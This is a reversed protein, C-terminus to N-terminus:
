HPDPQAAPHRTQNYFPRGQYLSHAHAQSASIAKLAQKVEPSLPGMIDQYGPLWLPVIAKLRKVRPLTAALWIKKLPKLIDRMHYIPKTGRKKPKPQTFRRYKRLLRIAHKRHYGLTACFEDPIRSKEARHACKYRLFVTEIYERKSQPSM